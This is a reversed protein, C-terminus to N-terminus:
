PSIFNCGFFPYDSLLVVFAIHISFSELLAGLQQM